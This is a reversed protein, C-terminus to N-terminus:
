RSACRSRSHARPGVARAHGSCSRGGGARRTVARQGSATAVQAEAQGDIDRGRLARHLRMIPRPRRCRAGRYEADDLTVVVQGETVHQNEEASVGTVYGGVKAIVPVIHGDVQADDTSEHSRGYSWTKFGWAAAALVAIVIIPIIFKRKSGPESAM